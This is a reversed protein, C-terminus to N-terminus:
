FSAVPTPMFLLVFTVLCVVGIIRRALSLPGPEFPPHAEGASARAILGLVLFWVLWFMSNSIALFLGLQSHGLLVPLVFRFLNYGFLLLLSRRLWYAIRHHKEGLLAYAVHGGDLQGWPLLNIMTVLLGVWGAFATPHLQVDYGAPIPGLVLYKLALYGLSQGEQTYGSALQPLVESHRLGFVLVPLAVCLGALPGSAGIDMLASRSRIRGRMSIVAGLTGTGLGPLPIFHPLSAPVRHIRAAIYHGFEHTVLIALLPVGFSAGRSLFKLDVFSSIFGGSPEVGAFYAGAHFVSVVTALFLLLPVGVSSSEQPAGSLPAETSM